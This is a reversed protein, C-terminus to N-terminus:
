LENNEVFNKLNSLKKDWFESYTKIWDHIESLPKPSIQYITERGIKKSGILDAEELIKLHKSVATRTIPFQSSIDKLALNGCTLMDLITRRTPDAIAFFVDNQERSKM